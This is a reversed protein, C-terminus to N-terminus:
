AREILIKVNKTSLPEPQHGSINCRTLARMDTFTKSARHSQMKKSKLRLRVAALGPWFHVSNSLMKILAAIETLGPDQFANRLAM